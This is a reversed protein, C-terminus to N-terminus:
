EGRYKRIPQGKGRGAQEDRRKSQDGGVFARMIRKKVSKLQNGRSAPRGKNTKIAKAGSDRNKTANSKQAEIRQSRERGGRSLPFKKGSVRKKTVRSITLAAM